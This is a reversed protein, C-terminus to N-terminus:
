KHSSVIKGDELYTTAYGISVLAKNVDIWDAQHAIAAPWGPDTIVAKVTDMSPIIYEIFCDFDAFDWTPHINGLEKKM